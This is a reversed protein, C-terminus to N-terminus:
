SKSQTTIVKAIWNGFWSRITTSGSTQKKWICSNSLSM